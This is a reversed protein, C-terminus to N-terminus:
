YNHGQGRRSLLIYHVLTVTRAIMEHKTEFRDDDSVSWVFLLFVPRYLWLFLCLHNEKFINLYYAIYYNFTILCFNLVNGRRRFKTLYKLKLQMEDRDWKHNSPMRMVCM